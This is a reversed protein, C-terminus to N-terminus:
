HMRWAAYVIAAAIPALAWLWGRGSSGSAASGSAASSRAANATGTAPRGAAAPAAEPASAASQPVPQGAMAAETFRTFFEAAMKKAVGDILRAGVQALRGGVQAQTRYILRTGSGETELEVKATGKANGAAGGSGEFSLAYGVPAKLDQLELRGNFRAKIPGVTAALVVKFKNDEIRELSECGPVSAQLIRPDNLAAWVRERPLPLFQEDTLEM